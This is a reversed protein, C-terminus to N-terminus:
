SLKEKLSALNEEDEISYVEAGIYEAEHTTIRCMFDYEHRDLHIVKTQQGPTMIRIEVEEM